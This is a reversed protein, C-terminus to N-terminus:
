IISIHSETNPKQIGVWHTIDCSLFLLAKQCLERNEIFRNAVTLAVNFLTINGTVGINKRRLDIFFDLFGEATKEDLATETLVECIIDEFEM